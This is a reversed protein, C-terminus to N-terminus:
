RLNETKGDTKRLLYEELEHLGEPTGVEHFREDVEFCALEGRFILQKVLETMDFSQGPVFDNFAEKSFVSLGFDIYVMDQTQKEKDFWTVQEGKISLNSPVWRNENRFVTMLAPKALRYFSQIVPAFPVDLYSDGYLVAFPSDVLRSAKLVAGGTGILRVPKGEFEEIRNAPDLCDDDYSYDVNIGFKTGDGVYERLPESKHGVCLVVNKVGNDKLLLLQHAIFPTDNVSVMSKPLGPNVASLRTGLGGALILVTPFEEM